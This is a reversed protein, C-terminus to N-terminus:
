RPGLQVFMSFFLVRTYHTHKTYTPQKNLRSGSRLVSDPRQCSSLLCSSVSSTVSTGSSSQYKDSNIVRAARQRLRVNAFPKTWPQEPISVHVRRETSPGAGGSSSPRGLEDVAVIHVEMSQPRGGVRSTGGGGGGGAGHLAKYQCRSVSVSRGLRRGASTVERRLSSSGTSDLQDEVSKSRSSTPPAGAIFSGSQRKMAKLSRPLSNARRFRIPANRAGTTAAGGGGGGDRGGGHHHQVTATAWLDVSSRTRVVGKLLSKLSLRWSCSSRLDTRRRDGDDVGAGRTKCGGAAECRYVEQLPSSLRSGSVDGAAVLSRRSSSTSSKRTALGRFLTWSDLDVAGFMTLQRRRRRPLPKAVDVDGVITRRWSSLRRHEADVDGDDETSASRCHLTSSSSSSHFRSQRAYCCGRVDVRVTEPQGFVPFESSFVDDIDDDRSDDLSSSLESAPM